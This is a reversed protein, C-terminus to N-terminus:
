LLPAELAPLQAMWAALEAPLPSEVTIPEGTSPQEFRIRHAHLFYRPLTPEGAIKAPAGYLRDGVVPHGISSLHVRIQHTRGTGIRVELYTFGAFRRLVHYESWAARGKALRATMRIRQRPDRAISKEIRGRDPKVKGHVMALYTKEVRRSAFQEALRQHAADNKAVLLAGSTYRDLRHVIGPRLEGATQSLSAFRHVLANVLTGTRVGAGTHVVMGAPKDIAVVDADEYLVTLPIEEPTARLPAPPAPEVAAMDGGRVLYSARRVAGNVVVRGCKIWEQLRARSFQPLHQHLVYDLRKGADEPNLEIKLSKREGPEGCQAQNEQLRKRPLWNERILAHHPLPELHFGLCIVQYHERNTVAVHLTDANQEVAVM